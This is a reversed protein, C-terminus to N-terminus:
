TRRKFKRLNWAKYGPLRSAFMMAGKGLTRTVNPHLHGTVKQFYMLLRPNGSRVSFGDVFFGYRKGPASEGQFEQIGHLLAEARSSDTSAYIDALYGLAVNDSYRSDSVRAELYALAACAFENTNGLRAELGSIIGDVLFAREQTGLRSEFDKLRMGTLFRVLSVTAGINRQQSTLHHSASDESERYLVTERRSLMAGGMTLANLMLETDPFATSHWPADIETLASVRYAISPEPLVHLAITAAILESQVADERLLWSARPPTGIRQGSNDISGLGASLIVTKETAREALERLTAVHNPLYIDDQNMFGVWSSKLLDLNLKLSGHFGLNVPNTVVISPNELNKVMELARNLTEDTSANNAIVLNFRQDTQARLQSELGSIFEAANYVGLFLTLDHWSGPKVRTQILRSHRFATFFDVPEAM